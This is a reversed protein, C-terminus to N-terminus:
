YTELSCRSMAERISEFGKGGDWPGSQPLSSVNFGYESRIQHASIASGRVQPLLSGDCQLLSRDYGMNPGYETYQFRLGACRHARAHAHTGTHTPRTSRSRGGLFAGLVSASRPSPTAPTHARVRVGSSSPPSAPPLFLFYMHQVVHM